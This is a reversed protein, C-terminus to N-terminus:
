NRSLKVIEKITKEDVGLFEMDSIMDMISSYYEIKHYGRERWYRVEYIVFQEGLIDILSRFREGETDEFINHCQKTIPNKLMVAPNVIIEEIKSHKVKLSFHKPYNSMPELFTKSIETTSFEM